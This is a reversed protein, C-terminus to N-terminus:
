PRFGFFRFIRFNGLFTSFRLSISFFASFVFFQMSKVLFFGLFINLFKEKIIKKKIKETEDQTPNIAVFRSFGRLFVRLWGFGRLVVLFWRFGGLFGSFGRFGGLVM